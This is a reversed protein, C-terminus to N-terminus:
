RRVLAFAALGLGGVVVLPLWRSWEAKQQITTLARREALDAQAALQRARAQSEAVLAAAKARALDTKAAQKQAYMNGLTSLSSSLAESVQGWDFAAGVGSARRAYRGIGLEPFPRAVARSYSKRYSM